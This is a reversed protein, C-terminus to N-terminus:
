IDGKRLREYLEKHKRTIADTEGYYFRAERIVLDLLKVADELDSWVGTM